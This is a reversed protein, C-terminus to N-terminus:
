HCQTFNLSDPKDGSLASVGGGLIGINVHLDSAYIVGDLDTQCLIIFLCRAIEVQYM